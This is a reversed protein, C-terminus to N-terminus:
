LIVEAERASTVSYFLHDNERGWGPDQGPVPFVIVKKCHLTYVCMKMYTKKILKPIDKIWTSATFM